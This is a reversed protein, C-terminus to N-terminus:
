SGLAISIFVLLGIEAIQQTAGLVDGTHGGIHHRSLAFVIHAGLLLGVISFAFPLLGFVIVSLALAPVSAFLAYRLQQGTASGFQISLGKIGNKAPSADTLNDRAAPLFSWPYLIALRSLSCSVVLLAVAPWLGSHSLVGALLTVRLGMCIVLVLVGYTGIHSDRMIELKRATEFGGWFGDAVDALGDEHLAGTTLVLTGMALLAAPLSPLGLQGVVLLVLAAPLAIIMGAVPFAYAIKSFDLEPAGRSLNGVPLRSLFAVSALTDAFLNKM